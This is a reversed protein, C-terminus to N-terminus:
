HTTLDKSIMIIGIKKYFKDDNRNIFSFRIGLEARFRQWDRKKLRGYEGNSYAVFWGCFVFVVLIDVIELIAEGGCTDFAFYCLAM